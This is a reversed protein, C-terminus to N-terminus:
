WYPHFLGVFKYNTTKTVRVGLEKLIAERARLSRSWLVGTYATYSLIFAVLSFSLCLLLLFVSM